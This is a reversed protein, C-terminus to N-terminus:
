QKANTEHLGIQEGVTRFKKKHHGNWWIRGVMEMINFVAIQNPIKQM